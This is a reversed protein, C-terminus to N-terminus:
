DGAESLKCSSPPKKADGNSEYLAKSAYWVLIRGQGHRIFVHLDRM